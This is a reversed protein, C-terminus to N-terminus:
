VSNANATPPVVGALIDRCFAVPYVAVAVVPKPAAPDIAAALAPAADGCGRKLIALDAASINRQLAAAADQSLDIGTQQAGGQCGMLVLLTAVSLFRNMATSRPQLSRRSPQRRSVNGPRM